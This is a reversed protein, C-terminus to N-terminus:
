TFLLKIPNQTNSKCFDVYPNTFVRYLGLMVGVELILPSKLPVGLGPVGLIYYSYVLLM